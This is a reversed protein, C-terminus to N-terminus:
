ILFSLCDSALTPAPGELMISDSPDRAALRTLRADVRAPSIQLRASNTSPCLKYVPLMQLHASDLFRLLNQEKDQCTQQSM